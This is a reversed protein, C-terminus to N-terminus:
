VFKLLVKKGKGGEANRMVERVTRGVQEDDGALEVIRTPPEVLKGDAVMQALENMM